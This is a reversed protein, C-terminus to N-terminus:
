GTDKSLDGLSKQLAGHMGLTSADTTELVEHRGEVVMAVQGLSM